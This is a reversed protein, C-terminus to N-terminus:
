IQEISIALKDRLTALDLKPAVERCNNAEIKSTRPVVYYKGPPLDYYMALNRNFDYGGPEAAGNVCTHAPIPIAFNRTCMWMGLCVQNPKDQIGPGPKEGPEWQKKRLVRHGYADYLDFGEAWFIDLTMCTMVSAEKDSTNDIWLHLVAPQGLPIREEAVSLGFQLDGWPDLMMPRGLKSADAATCQRPLAKEGRAAVSKEYGVNMADGDYMGERWASVTVAGCTGVGFPLTMTQGERLTLVVKEVVDCIQRWPGKETNYRTAGVLFHASEGAALDLWGSPRSKFLEDECNPCASPTWSHSQGVPFWFELQPVGGVRCDGGAVNTVQYALADHFKGGKWEGVKEAKLQGAECEPLAAAIEPLGPLKPDRVMVSTAAEAYAFGDGKRLRSFLEYEVRGTREPQMGTQTLMLRATWKADQLKNKGDEECHNVYVKTQGDVERKRMVAFPCEAEPRPLDLFLEFYDGLMERERQPELDILPDDPTPAKAVPLPGFDTATAGFRQLWPETMGDGLYPGVRLRSVYARDCVKMWLHEVKVFAPQGYRLAVGLGDRNVCAPYLFTVSSRWVVLVHATEGPKVAYERERFEAEGIGMPEDYNAGGEFSDAGGQPLLEVVTERLQCAVPGRNRLEIALRHLEKASGFEMPPLVRVDLMEATCAEVPGAWASRPVGLGVIFVSIALITKV